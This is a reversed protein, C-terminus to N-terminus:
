VTYANHVEKIRKRYKEAAVQPDKAKLIGSMVAVGSAGARIVEKTNEPAIGGIAVVPLDISRTLEKLGDLGRPELGPKSATEFIHGYLLYDAGQQQAARAEDISHVSKGILLDPFAKKVESVQLSHHALQVGSAESVAAVDVRDNIIIKELPVEHEALQKVMEVLERAPRDKERIHIFDVEQHIRGIVKTFHEITQTGTSIVHIQPQM